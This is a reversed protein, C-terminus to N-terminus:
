RQRPDSEIQLRADPDSSPPRKAAARKVLWRVVPTKGTGGTTINGVSIVARGADRPKAADHFKNRLSVVGGYFPEIACACPANDGGAACSRAGSIIERHYKEIEM